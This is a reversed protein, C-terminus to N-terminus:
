EITSSVSVTLIVPSLGEEFHMAATLDRLTLEPKVVLSLGIVWNVRGPIFQKAVMRDAGGM